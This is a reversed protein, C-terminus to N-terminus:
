DQFNAALKKLDEMSRVPQKVPSQGGAKVVPITPKPQQVQTNAAPAQSGAGFGLKQLDSTVMNIVTALDPEKGMAQTIQVGKNIVADMFANPAGMKEDYLKAMDGAQKQVESSIYQQAQIREYEEATSKYRDLEQQKDWQSATLRRNDEYQAKLTPNQALEIKKQIWAVINKEPIRLESFFSDYDGNQVFHSLKAFNKSVTEYEQVKPSLEAIKQKLTNRNQELSELGYAKEHMRKIKDLAEQDKALPKFMEDIEHEAGAAKFKFDPQWAPQEGNPIVSESGAPTATSTSSSTSAGAQSTAPTQSTETSVSETTSSQADMNVESM